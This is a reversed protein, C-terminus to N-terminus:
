DFMFRHLENLIFYHDNALMHKCFSAKETPKLLDGHNKSNFGGDCENIQVFLHLIDASLFTKPNRGPYTLDFVMDLFSWREKGMRVNLDAGPPRSMLLKKVTEVDETNIADAMKRNWVQVNTQAYKQGGRKAVDVAHLPVKKAPKREKPAVTEWGDDASNGKGTASM